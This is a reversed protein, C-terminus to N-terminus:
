IFLQSYIKIIGLQFWQGTAKCNTICGLAKSLDFLQMTGVIEELFQYVTSRLLDKEFDM